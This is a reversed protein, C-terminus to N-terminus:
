MDGYKAKLREFEAREAEEAAAAKTRKRELTKLRKREAKEQDIRECELRYSYEMDTELRWIDLWIDYGSYYSHRRNDITCKTHYDPIINDEIIQNVSNIINSLAEDLTVGNTVEFAATIDVRRDVVAIKDIVIIEGFSVRVITEM